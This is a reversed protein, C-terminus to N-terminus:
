KTCSTDGLEAITAMLAYRQVSSMRLLRAQWRKRQRNIKERERFNEGIYRYDHLELPEPYNMWLWETASTGARTGAQFSISRWGQLRSAYLSSWYGSIAVMCPLSLLVDLLKEHEQETALEHRYIPRKSRRTSMLYPPDCYVFEGGRWKYSKLFSIADGKKYTCGPVGGELPVGNISIGSRQWNEIVNVDSDIGISCDAPKKHLLIAGGGLFAEIYTKHPPIQNIIKHYIGDSAKGGPYGM